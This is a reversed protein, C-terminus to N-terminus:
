RQSGQGADFRGSDFPWGFQDLTGSVLDRKGKESRIDKHWVVNTVGNLLEPGGADAVVIKKRLAWAAGLEARVWESSRVSNESSIVVVASCSELEQRVEDPWHDGARLSETFRFVEVDQCRFLHVIDDAFPADLESYSLFLRKPLPSSDTAGRDRPDDGALAAQAQQSVAWLDCFERLMIDYLDDPFPTDIVHEWPRKKAATSSTWFRGVLLHDSFFYLPGVPTETYFRIEVDTGDVLDLLIRLLTQWSSWGGSELRAAEIEAERSEQGLHVQHDNAVMALRWLGDISRSLAAQGIAAARAIGFEGRPHALLLKLPIGPNGFVRAFIHERIDDPRVLTDSFFSDLILIVRQDTDNLRKAVALTEEDSQWLDRMGERPSDGSDICHLAIRALDEDKVLSQLIGERARFIELQDRAM